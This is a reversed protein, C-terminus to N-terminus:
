KIENNDKCGNKYQIEVLHQEIRFVRGRDEVLAEAGQRVKRWQYPGDNGITVNPFESCDKVEGENVASPLYDQRDSGDSTGILADWSKWSPLLCFGNNQLRATSAPTIKDVRM